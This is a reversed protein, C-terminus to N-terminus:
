AENYLATKEETTLVRDYLRLNDIAMDKFRGFHVGVRVPEGSDVSGDTALTESADIANDVWGEITLGDKVYGLLHWDGDCVNITGNFAKVTGPSTPVYYNRITGNTNTINMWYNAPSSGVLRSSNGIIQGNNANTSKFWFFCSFDKGNLENWDTLSPLDIYQDIGDLEASYTGVIGTGYTLSNPATATRGNGSSDNLNNEFEYFALADTPIGGGADKMFGVLQGANM